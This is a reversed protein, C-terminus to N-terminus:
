LRGEAREAQLRRLAMQGRLYGQRWVHAQPADGHWPQVALGRRTYGAFWGAVYHATAPDFAHPTSRHIGHDSIARANM